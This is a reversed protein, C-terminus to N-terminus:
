RINLNANDCALAVDDVADASTNISRSGRLCLLASKMIIFSLKCRIWNIVTDYRQDTKQAIKEALRKHFNSCEPAMGGYITYVLPTFSGHENNM